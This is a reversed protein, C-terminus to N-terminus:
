LIGSETLDHLHLLGLIKGEEDLVPLVSIKKQQMIASAETAKKDAQIFSFNKNILQSIPMKLLDEYKELGRRLDGDTFIGLMKNNEDAILACGLRKHSINLMVTKVSEEPNNIPIEENKHMLDGVTTLLRKGLRGFPHSRAFDAQNFKREQMVAIALADCLALTATSSSTPALKFPCAEEINHLKLHITAEQAMPSNERGTIAITPVGLKKVVNMMLLIERSEGSFSLALLVDNKTVMGVDGHGAETPHIFFAPSGTSALTAAIKSGIHGSKGLGTVIIHGECDLCLKGAKKFNEDLSLAQNLVANGEIDLVKKANDLFNKM